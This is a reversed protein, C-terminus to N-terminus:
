NRIKVEWWVRLPNYEDKCKTIEVIPCNDNFFYFFVFGDKFKIQPIPRKIRVEQVIAKMGQVGVDMIKAKGDRTDIVHVMYRKSVTSNPPVVTNEYVVGTRPAADCIPCSTSTNRPAFFRKYAIPPTNMLRIKYTQNPEFTMFSVKKGGDQAQQAMQSLYMSMGVKSEVSEQM